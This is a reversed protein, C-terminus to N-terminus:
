IAVEERDSRTLKKRKNKLKESIFAEVFQKVESTMQCNKLGRCQSVQNNRVEMTYFPKQPQESKRVLYIEKKGEAYDKIYQGICHQLRKGENILENSSMAPRILLGSREFSRKELTQVRNSIKKDLIADAQIQVLKTTKQHMEHLDKPYLLMDQKLDYGLTICDIIYDRWNIIIESISFSFEKKLLKHQKQIYNHARLLSSYNLIKKLNVFYPDYNKALSNLEELSLKSKDKKIIQQLRLTLPHLDKIPYEHVEKLQQKSIKIVQEINKGNWNIAGYTAQGHLKASVFYSMQLKTLYEICPYRSYLDFFKVMDRDLYKEYTSYQYPTGEVAKKISDYNCDVATWSSYGNSFYGGYECRVNAQQLIGSENWNSRDYMLGKQGPIFLYYHNTRFETDVDIYNLRYDRSVFIGRAVIAQPDVLSKEYYVFYGHDSLKKRSRGSAKVLCYSECKKCNVKENESLLVDTVYKKRCHTCYAFQIGKVRKTFIYRSHPLIVEDVYTKIEKSFNKPFHALFKKQEIQSKRKKL